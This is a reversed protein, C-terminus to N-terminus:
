HIVDHQQINDILNSCFITLIFEGVLNSCFTRMEGTGDSIRCCYRGVPGEIDGQHYLRVTQSGRIWYFGSGTVSNRVIEM